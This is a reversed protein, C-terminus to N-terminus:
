FVRSDARPVPPPQGIYTEYYDVAGLDQGSEADKAYAVQLQDPVIEPSTVRPACTMRLPGEPGLACDSAPM